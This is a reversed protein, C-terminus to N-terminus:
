TSQKSGLWVTLYGGMGETSGHAVVLDLWGDHNLDGAAISYPRMLGHDPLGSQSDLSWEEQGNRRFLFLGYASDGIEKKIRGSGVIELMGDQEFDAVVIGQGGMELRKLGSSAERWGGQGDALHIEPGNAKEGGARGGNLIIDLLGDNNLDAVALGQFEGSASYFGLPGGQFNGQADQLFLVVGQRALSALIDKRGDGNLDRVVLQRGIGGILQKAFEWKAGRKRQYIEIGARQGGLLIAELQGDANLDALEAGTYSDPLVLVTDRLKGQDANIFTHLRLFHSAAILDLQGDQNLDGVALGSYGPSDWEQPMETFSGDGQGLWIHLSNVSLPTRNTCIIDLNGDGNFDVLVPYPRWELGEGLYLAKSFFPIQKEGKWFHGVATCGLFGGWLSLAVMVRLASSQWWGLNM